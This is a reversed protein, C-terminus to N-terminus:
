FVEEKVFPPSFGLVNKGLFEHINLLYHALIWLLIFYKKRASNLFVFSILQQKDM